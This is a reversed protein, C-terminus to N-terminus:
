LIFPRHGRHRKGLGPMWIEGQYDINLWHSPQAVDLDGIGNLQFSIVGKLRLFEFVQDGNPPQKLFILLHPM